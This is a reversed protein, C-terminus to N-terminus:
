RRRMVRLREAPEQPTGNAAVGGRYGACKLTPAVSIEGLPPDPGQACECLRLRAQAAAVEHRPHPNGLLGDALEDLAQHRQPIDFPTGGGVVSAPRQEM